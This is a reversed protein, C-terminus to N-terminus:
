MSPRQKLRRKLCRELARKLFGGPNRIEGELAGDETRELHRLVWSVGFREVVDAVPLPGQRGKEFYKFSIAELRRNIRALLLEDPNQFNHVDAVAPIDNHEKQKLFNELSRDSTIDDRFQCKSDPPPSNDVIPPSEAEELPPLPLLHYWSSRGTRVSQVLNAARLQDLARYITRDTLELDRALNCVKARFSDRGKSAAALHQRLFRAYLRKAAQTLVGPPLAEGSELRLLAPHFPENIKSNYTFESQQPRIQQADASM